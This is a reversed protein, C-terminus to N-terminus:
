CCWTAPVLIPAGDICILPWEVYTQAGYSPISLRSVLMGRRCARSIIRALIALGDHSPNGIVTDPGINVRKQRANM